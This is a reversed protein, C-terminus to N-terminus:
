RLSLESTLQCFAHFASTLQDSFFRARTTISQQVALRSAASRSYSPVDRQDAAFYHHKFMNTYVCMCVCVNM